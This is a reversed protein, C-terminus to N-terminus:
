VWGQTETRLVRGLAVAEEVMKALYVDQSAERLSYFSSGGRVYEDMSDLCAAIAIEDDVLRSGQYPNRYLWKGDAFVGKLDFGEFNEERGLDKRTFVSEIPTRFDELYKIKENFVEGRECKVQVIPSRVWSRHQDTEHNLLATKGDFDLVAITQIKEAIREVEPEGERTYGAIVPVPFATATIKANEFGINLYKRILAVAHYAHTFSIQVHSPSGLKGQKLFALRAMHMPQFPYQEAVQIKAGTPLEEHFRCLAELSVAAPTELLVPMGERLLRLSVDMGASASVCVVVFDMKGSSLL